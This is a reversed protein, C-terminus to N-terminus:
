RRLFSPARRRGSATLLPRFSFRSPSTLIIPPEGGFWIGYGSGRSRGSISTTIPKPNHHLFDFGPLYANTSEMSFGVGEGLKCSRVTRRAFEPWAWHFVRSTGYARIQWLISYERPYNTYDEYSGSPPYEWGGQASQYPLGLQEGNYKPEIYVSHNTSNALERVKQPDAM